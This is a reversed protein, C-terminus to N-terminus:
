SGPALHGASSQQRSLCRYLVDYLLLAEIPKAIFDDMGAALCQLRDEPTANATMAVIVLDSWDSTQRMARTAELGDMEPMQMDMLVLDFSKPRAEALIDLAERGNAAMTVVAGVQRLMERAVLQNFDNDEAVLVRAGHLVQRWAESLDPLVGQLPSAPSSDVANQTLAAGPDRAFRASFSFVSGLGLDSQVTIEGGMREILRQSIVLGLGTGGFRRTMSSDAQGFASFLRSLHEPTMGIGTDKVQVKLQLSKASESAVAVEVTVAGSETFKVANGCLNVLVQELRLADGVLHTPVGASQAFSFLLGKERALHGAIADVNAVVDGLAFRNMELFMGGAEIKTFDLIDDVIRVLNRAARETKAVFERQREELPTQLCLHSFGIIANLPTRIEHSMNALFASKAKTASEAQEKALALEATRRMVREELADKQTLIDREYRRRETVDSQVSIFRTAVGDAGNVPTIQVSVWYPAGHKTYNLLEEKVSRSQGIAARIRAVAEQNTDPGQLVQGPRQGLVEDLTYDTKHTFARNVWEIRGSADTIIVINDTSSAVISLMELEDQIRKRRTIDRIAGTMGSGDIPAVSIEVWAISADGKRMRFQAPVTQGDPPSGQSFLEALRARDQHVVFDSLPQGLSASVDLGLTKRWAQNLFVLQGQADTEFVVESLLDIRRRTRQESLVLAETLRYTAEVHLDKALESSDDNDM